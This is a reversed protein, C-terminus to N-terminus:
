RSSDGDSAEVEGSQQKVKMAVLAGSRSRYGLRIVSGRSYREAFDLRVGSGATFLATERTEKTTEWETLGSGGGGDGGGGGTGM